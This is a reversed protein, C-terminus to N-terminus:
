SYEKKISNKGTLIFSGNKRIEGINYASLYTGASKIGWTFEDVFQKLSMTKEIIKSFGEVSKIQTHKLEMLERSAMGFIKYDNPSEFTQAFLSGAMCLDAGGIFSKVADGSNKIGGDAVIFANSYRSSDLLATIQPIGIGTVNRTSCLGGSGIGVRVIDVGNEELQSVGKSTAVNGSMLLTKYKKNIIYEKVKLCFKAISETYGNAIDIVLIDPEYELVKKYVDDNYGISLGYQKAKSIEKIESFWEEDTDYFRHLIGLGGLEALKICFSADVIGRMPSALLPFELTLTDSLKVSIDVDERHNVKSLIPKILVDDYDLGQEFNYYQIEDFEFTQAMYNGKPDYIIDCKQM